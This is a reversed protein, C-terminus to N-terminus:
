KKNYTLTRKELLRKFEEFNQRDEFAREPIILADQEGLYLLFYEKASGIKRFSSYPYETKSNETNYIVSDESLEIERDGVTGPNETVFRQIAKKRNKRKKFGLFYLIAGVFLFIVWNGWDLIEEYVPRKFTSVMYILFIGLLIWILNKQIFSTNKNYNYENFAVIDEQGLVYQIKM